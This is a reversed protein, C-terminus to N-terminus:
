RQQPQSGSIHVMRGFWNPARGVETRTSPVMRAPPVTGRGVHEVVPRAVAQVSVRRCLEKYNTSGRRHRLHRPQLRSNQSSADGDAAAEERILRHEPEPGWAGFDVAEATLLELEPQKRKRGRRRRGGLGGQVASDVGVRQEDAVDEERASRIWAVMTRLRRMRGRDEVWAKRIAGDPNQAAVFHRIQSEIGLRNVDYRARCRQGEAGEYDADSLLIM